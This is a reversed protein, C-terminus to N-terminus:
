CTCFDEKVHPWVSRLWSHMYWVFVKNKYVYSLDINNKRCASGLYSTNYSKSFSTENPLGLRYKALKNPKRWLYQPIMELLCVHIILIKRTQQSTTKHAVADDNNLTLRSLVKYDTGLSTNLFTPLPLGRFWRVSFLITDM